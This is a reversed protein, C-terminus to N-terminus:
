FQGIVGLTHVYSMPLTRVNNLSSLRLYQTQQKLLWIRAQHDISRGQMM